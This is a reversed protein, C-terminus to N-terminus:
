NLFLQSLVSVFSLLWGKLTGAYNPALELENVNYGAYGTGELMVAVCLLIVASLSHCGIFTIASLALAPGLPLEYVM